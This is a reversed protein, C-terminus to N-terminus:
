TRMTGQDSVTLRYTPESTAGTFRLTAEFPPHDFRPVRRAGRRGRVGIRAAKRRMNRSTFRLVFEDGANM